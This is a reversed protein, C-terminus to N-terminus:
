LLFAGAFAERGFFARLEFFIAFLFEATAFAFLFATLVRLIVAFGSRGAAGPQNAIPRPWCDNSINAARDAVRM